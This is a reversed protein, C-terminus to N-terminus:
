SRQRRALRRANGAVTRAAPTMAASLVTSQARLMREPTMSVTWPATIMQLWLRTMAQSAALSGAQAAAVKEAVMRQNERRRQPTPDTLSMMMDPWRMAIVWPALFLRLMNM